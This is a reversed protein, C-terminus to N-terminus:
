HEEFEHATRYRDVYERASRNWDFETAMGNGILQEWIEPEARAQLARHLASALAEPSSEDFVFGNATGAELSAPTTDVVTDALGGTRRVVPPTGYRLSYMQNLGCPEYRSPMAFIDVGAELLHSISESYGLFVFVRGPHESALDSLRQQLSAEGTGVFAFCVETERLLQPLAEVLLDVGKQFVLRGVFGVFPASLVQEDVEYGMELLMEARNERKAEAVGQDLSYHAVLHEDSSPDWVATDIGNLIGHLRDSRHQLINAYGYGFEPTCIERAYTPSVTTIVDSFMLGAKMLSFRGYFEAREMSWWHPPLRLAQFLGYDFQCDYALNHITFIRKPSHIEQELFAHTLGTQWDHAHVVDPRWGLGLADLGLLSAARSFATFRVANDQWDNGDPGTYPNGERDFMASHDVLWVPMSYAAHEGELIRVQGMVGLDLWGLIQLSEFQQLVSRYAPLLLRVDVEIQALANPLAHSVDALGGTKILPFAESTVYLVRLPPNTKKKKSRAM